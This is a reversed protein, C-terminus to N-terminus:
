EPADIVPPAPPVLFYVHRADLPSGGGRVTLRAHLLRPVREPPIRDNRAAIVDWCVATGPTVAPYVDPRGDGDEDSVAAGGCRESRAELGALLALADGDDGPEDTAEITVRLPTGEVVERIAASVLPVIAGDVGDFVLPRGTRDVSGSAHCLGALDGRSPDTTSGTWVGVTRIGATRLAGAADDMAEAGDSDEDTLAVLIRVADPRFGPCGIGGGVCGSETGPAGVPDAVGWAARYLAETTGTVGFSLADRTREPSPQVGLVNTLQDLYHGAGSWPSAVCGHLAPDEICRGLTSCIEGATCDGDRACAADSGGCSLEGLLTTVAGRLAGIEGSMSGSRDFLFYVDALQVRTRFTLTDREPAPPAEFPVVFVFDGRARPNSAPDRPGTGAAVEVLDSAGDGDSDSRRPDTHHLRAEDRDSLGDDDSDPDRLDLVGDGDGDATGEDADLLGDDDSDLDRADPVGDGDTDGLREIRDLVGDGDTDADRHDPLGDGDTDRPASALEDVDRLGDGDDDPDHADLVGDRDADAAGEDADPVGNGDADLDRVDPVGDADADRPPSRPDDDGAEAADPLGDGDSDGDEADIVGDADTDRREFLGEDADTLGDADRDAAADEADGGADRRLRLPECALTLTLCLAIFAAARGCTHTM